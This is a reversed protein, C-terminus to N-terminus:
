PAKVSILKDLLNTAWIVTPLKSDRVLHLIVPYCPFPAPDSFLSNPFMAMVAKSTQPWLSLGVYGFWNLVGPFLLCAGFLQAHFLTGLYSPKPLLPLSFPIM